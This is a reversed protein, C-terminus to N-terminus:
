LRARREYPLYKVAAPRLTCSAEFREAQALRQFNRQAPSTWSGACGTGKGRRGPYVYPRYIRVDYTFDKM